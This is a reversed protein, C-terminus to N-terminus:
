NSEAKQWVINKKYFKLLTAIPVREDDKLRRKRQDKELLLYVAGAGTGGEVRASDQSIM